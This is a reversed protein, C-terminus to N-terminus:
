RRNWRCIFICATLRLLSPSILTVADGVQVGLTSAMQQGMAIVDGGYDVGRVLAGTGQGNASVFAQKPLIPMALDVDSNESLWNAINDIEGSEPNDVYSQVYVHGQAGLMRSVLEERFGNMISMVIIMAAIALMICAFSIGAILGVGGQSKRAGLYRM